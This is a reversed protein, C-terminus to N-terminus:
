REGVIRLVKVIRIILKLPLDAQRRAGKAYESSYPEYSLQALCM